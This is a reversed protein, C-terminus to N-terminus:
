DQEFEFDWESENPLDVGGSQTGMVIEDAQGILTLEPAEYQKQM